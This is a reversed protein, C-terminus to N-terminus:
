ARSEPAADSCIPTQCRNHPHPQTRGLIDLRASERRSEGTRASCLLRFSFEKRSRSSVASPTPVVSPTRSLLIVVNRRSWRPIPIVSAHNYGIPYVDPTGDRLSRVFMAWRKLTPLLARISSTGFPRNFNMGVLERLVHRENLRGKPVRAIHFEGGLTSFTPSKEATGGPCLFGM